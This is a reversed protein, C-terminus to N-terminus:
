KKATTPPNDAAAPSHNASSEQQDVTPPNTSREATPPATPSHHGHLASTALQASDTSRPPEDEILLERPLAQSPQRRHRSM